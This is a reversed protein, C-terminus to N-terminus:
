RSQIQPTATIHISDAADFFMNNYVYFSGSIEMKSFGGFFIRLYGCFPGCVRRMSNGANNALLMRQLKADRARPVKGRPVGGGGAQTRLAGRGIPLFLPYTSVSLDFYAKRSWGYATNTKTCYMIPIKIVAFRTYCRKLQFFSSSPGM